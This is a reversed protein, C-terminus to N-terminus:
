PESKEIHVMTITTGRDVIIKPRTQSKEIINIWKKVTRANSRIATAIENTTKPGGQVLENFIKDILDDPKKRPERDM